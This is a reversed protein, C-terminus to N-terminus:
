ELMLHTRYPPCHVPNELNSPAKKTKNTGLIAEHFPFLCRMAIGRKSESTSEKEPPDKKEHDQYGDTRGRTNRHDIELNRIMNNQPSIFYFFYIGDM